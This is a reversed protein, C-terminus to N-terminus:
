RVLRRRGCTGRSSSALPAVNNDMRVFAGTGVRGIDSPVLSWSGSPPMFGPRHALHLM